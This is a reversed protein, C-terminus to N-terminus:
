RSSRRCTSAAVSRNEELRYAQRPSLPPTWYAHSYDVSARLNRNLIPIKGIYRPLVDLSEESYMTHSHLSVGACHESSLAFNKWFLQYQTSSRRFDLNMTQIWTEVRM